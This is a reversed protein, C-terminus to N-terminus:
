ISAKTDIYKGHFMTCFDIVIDYIDLLHRLLHKILKHTHIRVYYLLHVSFM